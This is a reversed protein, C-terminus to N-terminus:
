VKFKGTLKQLKLAMSALESSTTQIDKASLTAQIAASKIESINKSVDYAGGAVENASRAIDQSGLSSEQVSQNMGSTLQANKNMNKSIDEAAKNQETISVKITNQIDSINIIMKAIEGIVESTDDSNSRITKIMEGITSTSKTTKEALKRIEDAVVAFGKGAEGARAAEIAANLALLNTQEAISNIMDVVDTILNVSKHLENMVGTVNEAKQRATLSVNNVDTINKSIENISVTMQEIASASSTSNESMTRSNQSLHEMNVRMEESAAAMTSISVSMQEAASAVMSSKDVAVETGNIMGTATVSLEESASALSTSDDKIESIVESIATFARVLGESIKTFVQYVQQTDRDVSAVQYKVTLDGKAVKDLTSNIKDIETNQFIMVKDLIKKEREIESNANEILKLNNQAVKLQYHFCNEIKNLGNHIAIAMQECTGYGCATCNLFDEEVVKHMAKYITELQRMDPKQIYNNKSLDTYKRGYIGPRWYKNLVRNISIKTRVASFPGSKKYKKQVEINRNEILKEVEDVSKGINLTGPGGNCGMECNLCDILLPANNKKIMEPLHHLYEYITNTGEIKRTLNVIDPLERAATRLLGGPTSFLVAREAPPNDYDHEPYRSLSINKDKFHKDLSKYTVNYNGYGTAEFERKKAYCPSIIAVKYNSYEPYFNKIMKITHLMPSDAPALHKILEPQYIEIYSVIAPCPQAIVTAPSASKIYDLYSKVTLEAGFSVDFVASVGISKLWGNLNLYNNKFNAAVAPAAIAVMKEGKGLASIFSDFDDVGRRAEHTCARICAGCGICLNKNVAVHDGSGDNCNKVPCAAICAHCNVCKTDDVSVVQALERAPNDSLSM